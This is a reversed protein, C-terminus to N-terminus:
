FHYTRGDPGAIKQGYSAFFEDKSIKGDGDTDAEKIMAAVNEDSVGMNGLAEKLEDSDIQGDGDKDYKKFVDILEPYTPHESVLGVSRLTRTLATPIHGLPQQRLPVGFKVLPSNPEAAKNEKREREAMAESIEAQAELQRKQICVSFCWQVTNLCLLIIAAYYANEISKEKFTHDYGIMNIGKMKVIACYFCVWFDVAIWLGCGGCTFPKAVGLMVQGMFCRDLGCCNFIPIMAFIVYLVKDVGSHSAGTLEIEHQAFGTMTNNWVKHSFTLADAQKGAPEARLNAHSSHDSHHDSHGHHPDSHHAAEFFAAPLSRSAFRADVQVALALLGLLAGVHVKM